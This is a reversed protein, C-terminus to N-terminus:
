NIIRDEDMEELDKIRADTFCDLVKIDKVKREIEKLNSDEVIENLIGKIVILESSIYNLEFLMELNHSNNNNIREILENIKRFALKELSM